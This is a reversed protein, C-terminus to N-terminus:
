IMNDKQINLDFKKNVFPSFYKFCTERHNKLAQEYAQIQSVKKEKDPKKYTSKKIGLHKKEDDEESPDYFKQEIDDM